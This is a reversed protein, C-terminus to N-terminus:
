KLIVMKRIRSLNDAQLQYFYIGSSVREGINNRGDWHVARSRNTYYGAVKHGLDLQRVIAGRTDYIIVVVKSPNALHYPIWTEPNFPNPYNALLLTKNPRMAALVSELLTIARLYGLSGDSEARLIDLQTQLTEPDLKKLMKPDLLSFMGVISPAGGGNIHYTVLTLDDGDVTDDWNVDTRSNVIAEGTQGFAATVLASDTADISGDQNVDWPPYDTLTITVTFTTSGAATNSQDGNDTAVGAAVNFTVSGSMTVDIDADVVYGFHTGQSHWSSITAGATNDTLTLESQEFGSVEESFVVTVHFYNDFQVGRPRTFSVSSLKGLSTAFVCFDDDDCLSARVIGTETDLKLVWDPEDYGISTWIEVEPAPDTITVTITDSGGNGDSVTITLSYSSKGDYDLAANSQLHDEYDSDFSFLAADTGSISYTLTDDDDDTARISVGLGNGKNVHFTISSSGYRFTPANNGDTIPTENVDTVTITVDISDSGSNGDSVTITVSYSNKIEYDLAALTQLQGSSDVISFSAADTGGLTYTLTDSTDADTASVPDGINQGSPTNEAVSRTTSTSDFEPASNLVQKVVRTVYITGSITATANDPDTAIVKISYSSSSDDILSQTVELQGSSDISFFSADEGGVSYSLTDNDADTATVASGIDKGVSADAIDSISYSFDSLLFTPARNENVNTVSITVSIADSLTGDSATVTVSYSNKDEYDLADSTKLQGSADDISFSASDTGGLSYELTDGDPDTASVVAGINTGSATNEAISRTTSTDAFVPARNEDVNTINITVSISDSGGKGDSVSVTVSYSSKDEYDLAASTRLQGSSSDISFSAADTGGLSYELTDRDADTASVASGFSVGSSINEAVSRTTSDNAFVPAHNENVDTVNITVSISDSGGKGDSVSVTVSYSSKDEYDLAASTRLQGSTDVLSFSASDTGGLSYTLTDNDLDTALVATGINRQSPTSEAVSRSTSSGEAFVPARNEDVDTVEITVSISDSGGKSDSVSVTVSYSSKDEYDLAASTQLQGSTDVLSFSASDTGGLSYTLTDNDLDTALVATGINRQSPTSEAVSRSTSSGEAFVPARNEDVDTVEITVSISDSGGKSDSVSVTVSYSSKDEYDLAASTQLQGSTDVLSFSASDTGGLSYTLTDNDLDTALVATGINRQSPTSEAVSRSTSSGEAFVPARNEDVNTVTITVIISDSGGKGDSVSVTVSYSGTMEYDLAASTQLQGSSSDISFSAADTGGLSYELTDRDADTASVPSGIDEGSVTNEAVSRTTSSNAFVPASNEDVNTVTITVSISDTLGGDSVTVTVLYSEKTEYDLPASTQLQGTDPDISFASADDGSLLYALTNNDADTASVPSGINEGSATTEAVSRSTSSGETFVPTNNSPTEDLNTVSIAVTISDRGGKGDSVSVTVTYSNQEEYDLEARTKLQGSRSDLSFSGADPGGLSYTLADADQDTASVAAGINIDADVNEAIARTTSDTQAFVPADNANLVNITVTIADVLSGDSATITVAYAAKNEYNLASSIQLQGSASNISFSGADTGGLSYILSDDDADTASIASGISTGADTNEAITRTTSSGDTFVPPNNSPVEAVDTVIVTVTITDTLSGDSATVTLAYTNKTEYDLEASTRLQGSNSNIGFAPADTGGLSYILSDDDADTASIASGISTGADTNEAITRTTSSGDTFVPPNNSPVEAVDTVIVTVTITDTLSGDSATVTLAYTNKTEYDLAASTRLQGSNSNIGFAPADTGSLSYILSDDDADTASIASGINTGADTNEAITRTTSSGDTFVPPNNSPVEAVDTVIVTVTITDTLSGDSVTVTLAYTNKTEYDLATSTRLQGSNSNIGFAPADTGGLSYILSDDDADTASIASGINIGTGTNEAITRTTNSGEAFVPVNNSPTENIDTVIVTVTITDTLSGDTVTITLAFTNRTEYDLAASTRLQGSTTDLSFSSADTGGLSYTLAHGDADMASVLSGINVGSSTNEAVSRTTSSGETFVPANNSIDTDTTVVPADASPDEDADTVKITVTISATLKGDSATITVSYANKTEYDLAASTKLQGSTTDIGFAAADPGSLSYTLTDGDEDTASVADGISTGAATNEAIARTTSDGDTFVPARNEDVDAVNITVSITDTLYGDFVTLTVAYSDKTEYDLAASTQLQGSNNDLSFAAADTGGLSYTLTTDPDIDTASVPDGIDKGTETNEAITRTTTDGDTFVPASNIRPIVELATQNSKVLAYGSHSSPPSPLNTIDVTVPAKTETTRTITLVESEVSGARIMIRTVDGDISGNVVNVPLVIDFPAGTPTVVSFAGDSVKELSVTLPLPSVSNGSLTLSELSGLDAFLGDPLSTLENNSLNLTALSPLSDFIGDPLSSLNNGNLTLETLSALDDFIGDPLSTLENNGLNLTTLSYMGSFDETKLSAISMGNLNLTTITALDAETVDPCDNAGPVAAAIADAVAPTRNCVASKALIYGYHNLPVRPLTGIAVSPSVSTFSASAISGKPITVTTTRGNMSGNMVDIPLVIDFPAGTPIVAQFEGDSVQQLSVILLMPDVFNGGLRLTTLATLGEFIGVPLSSLTNDYLNLDTLGTMGSFDGSQLESIGAARLNLATITTLHADTVESATNADPIAAVIADRVEPTRDSVPLLTATIVTDNIDIIDIIVTITDTLSGDSVTITVTYVRKMEYDLTAKTKLQGTTSDIGFATADLGSLRYTLTDGDTDTASVPSGMRVNAATNEAVTRITLDGDSFMPASNPPTEDVIPPTAATDTGETDTGETEAPTTDVPTEDLASIVALPLSDSKSLVYGYHNLPLSPLTGIDATLAATTDATRSVTLTESETSGKSIRLTTVGDTINGNTARIPLVIDFPAGTSATAKFQGDGVKELSIPIPMPVVTNGGLRLTTLATLGEFIADPLSGLQNGYLNLDALGTLGSFDDSKLTTISKARLDLATIATLHTETVDTASNVGAAAVIADRVQPTRDSVATVDASGRVYVGFVISLMILAYLVYKQNVRYGFRKM